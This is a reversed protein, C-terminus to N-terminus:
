SGVVPASRLGTVRLRRTRGRIIEERDAESLGGWVGYPEQVALAHRPHAVDNAARANHGRFICFIAARNRVQAIPLDDNCREEM